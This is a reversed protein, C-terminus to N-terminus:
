FLAIKNRTPQPIVEVMPVQSARVRSAGIGGVYNMVLDVAQNIVIGAGAVTMAVKLGKPGKRWVKDQGLVILGIGSVWKVINPTNLMGISKSPIRNVIEVIGREIAQGGSFTMLENMKSMTNEGRLVNDKNNNPTPNNYLGQSENNPNNNPNIEEIKLDDSCRPCNNVSKEGSKFLKISEELQKNTNNLLRAVEPVKKKDVRSFNSLVERTHEINKLNHKLNCWHSPNITNGSWLKVVDQRTKRVDDLLKAVKHAEKPNKGVFEQLHGEQHLLQMISELMEDQHARSSMGINAM